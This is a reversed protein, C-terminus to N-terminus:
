KVDMEVKRTGVGDSFQVDLRGGSPQLITASGGRAFSIIRGSADRVMAMPESAADWDLRVRRGGIVSASAPRSPARAAGAVGMATRSQRMRSLRPTVLNLAGVERGAPIVFAFHRQAGGPLDAVEVGEFAYSFRLSGDKAFGEIRYPGAGEPVRAPARVRFAPELIVSDDTIRGWVLLGDVTATAAPPAGLPSALRYNMVALYNYDSVWTPNCYGMLDKYNSPAKLSLA